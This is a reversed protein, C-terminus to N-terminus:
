YDVSHRSPICHLMTTRGGRVKLEPLKKSQSENFPLFYIGLGSSDVTTNILICLSRSSLHTAARTIYVISTFLPRSLWQLCVDFLFLGAFSKIEIEGQDEVGQVYNLFPTNNCEWSFSLNLSYKSYEQSLQNWMNIYVYKQNEALM